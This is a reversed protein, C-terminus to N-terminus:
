DIEYRTTTEIRTRVQKAKGAIRYITLAEDVDPEYAEIAERISKAEVELLM